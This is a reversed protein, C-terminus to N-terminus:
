CPRFMGEGGGRGSILREGLAGVLEDVTDYEACMAELEAPSVADDVWVARLRREAQEDM